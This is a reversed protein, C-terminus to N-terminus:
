FKGSPDLIPPRGIADTKNGFKAAQRKTEGPKIDVTMSNAYRPDRAAKKNPAVVGVGGTEYVKEAGVPNVNFGWMKLKEILEQENDARFDYKNTYGYYSGDPRKEVYATEGTRPNDYVSAYTAEDLQAFLENLLM